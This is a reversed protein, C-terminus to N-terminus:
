FWTMWTSEQIESGFGSLGVSSGPLGIITDGSSSNMPGRIRMLGDDCPQEATAQEFCRVLTPHANEFPDADHGDVVMPVSNPSALIGTKMALVCIEDDKDCM